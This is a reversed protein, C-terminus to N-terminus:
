RRGARARAVDSLVSWDKAGLGMAKAEIFKDRVVSAFPMPVDAAEAAALSLRLDKAGLAVAFGAPEFARDAIIQGYGRYATCAFLDGNTIEFLQAASIGYADALSAAESMSEIAAALMFNNALKIVNAKEPEAGVTWTKKGFTEFLPQLTALAGSDGAAVITLQGAAAVNPRGFVPASVFRQGREMHHTALRRAFAVSITSLCVHIIGKRAHDFAGSALLTEEISGDDPLMSFAIEGKLAADVSPALRAGEAVLRDAKAATRNWVTLQHKTLLRRAIAEGMQGLGIFGVNV